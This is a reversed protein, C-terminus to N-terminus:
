IFHNREYNLKKTMKIHPIGADMFIEGESVFGHNEYFKEANVQANLFVKTLNLQEAKCLIDSLLKTGIGQNRYEKLVAIRGIHGDNLLRATAIFQKDESLVLFHIAESDHEDIELDAPVQQEDIFVKSRIDTLIDHHSSWDTELIRM